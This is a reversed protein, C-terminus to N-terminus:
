RLLWTCGAGLLAFVALLLVARLAAIQLTPGLAARLITDSPNPMATEQRSQSLRTPDPRSARVTAAPNLILRAPCALPDTRVPLPHPTAPRPM